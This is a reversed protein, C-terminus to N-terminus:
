ALRKRPFARGSGTKLYCEFALAVRKDEFGGFWVLRWPRYRASAPTAGRNHRWLRLHIPNATFGIYRQGLHSLSQLIYVYFM